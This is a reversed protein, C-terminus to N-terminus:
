DSNVVNEPKQGLLVRIVNEISVQIIRMRTDTNAGAIHPTLILNVNPNKRSLSILPHNIDPPEKDFVDIAAGAIIGNQLANALAENDILEGRSANILISSPKMMRLERMTIMKRTENTLPVHLSIIDSDRLIQNIPKFTVNLNKEDNENLRVKDYYFVKVNFPILRKALEKGIRGMGIIGWSKGYLDYTGMDMLEWQYWKGEKISNNALILRKLLSLAVMIAYEAVSLSNASGINAVPIGKQKCAEIDIHDFGTSPQQLLKVRPGFMECLSKDIKIKMTHDGLIVDAKQLADKIKDMNTLDSFVEINVKKQLKNAYPEFLSQYFAKPLPGFAVVNSEEEM